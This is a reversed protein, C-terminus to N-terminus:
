TAHVGGRNGDSREAPGQALQRDGRRRQRWGQQRRLQFWLALQQQAVDAEVGSIVRMHHHASPHNALNLCGGLAGRKPDTAAFVVTGVRAQVAAGACMPCPELTVLLTCSNLRWDGLARAAQALAELEAHGLPDGQRHRRNSGWGVCRGRGDLVAAAVPIEGSEGVRQALRLLRAMWFVHLREDAAPTPGSLRSRVM